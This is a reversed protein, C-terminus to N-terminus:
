QLGRPPTASAPVNPMWLLVSMHTEVKNRGVRHSVTYDVQYLNNSEALAWSKNWRFQPYIRGFDGSDTEPPIANTLRLTFDQAALMSADPENLQLVRANRLTGSVLQLIAFACIVFIGLAIMVELLTFACTAPPVQRAVRYCGPKSRRDKATWWQIERSM